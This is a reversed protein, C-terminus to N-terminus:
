RSVAPTRVALWAALDDMVREREPENLIEHYLGEYPITTLDSAGIRESVLM